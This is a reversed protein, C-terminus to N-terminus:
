LLLFYLGGLKITMTQAKILFINDPKLDLHCINKSRMYKIASALQQIVQQCTKESLNRHKKIYDMLTGGNCYEQAIYIYSPTVMFDIMKVIHQHEFMEM